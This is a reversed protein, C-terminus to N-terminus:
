ASVHEAELVREVDEPSLEGVTVDGEPPNKFLIICAHDFLRSLNEHVEDLTPELSDEGGIMEEPLGFVYVKGEDDDLEAITVTEDM